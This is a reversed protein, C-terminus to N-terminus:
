PLAARCLDRTADDERQTQIRAVATKPPSAQLAEVTVDQRAGVQSSGTSTSAIQGDVTLEAQWGSRDLDTLSALAKVVFGDSTLTTSLTISCSPAAKTAALLAAGGALLATVFAGILLWGAILAKGKRRIEDEFWQKVEILNGPRVSRTRTLLAWLAVVVSGCSLLATLVLLAMVHAEPTQFATVVGFVALLTGVGTVAGVLFRTTEAARALSKQPSLEKSAEQWRDDSESVAEAAPNAVTPAVFSSGICTM